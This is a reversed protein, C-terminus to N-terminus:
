GRMARVVVSLILGVAALTIPIALLTDLDSLYTGFSSIISSALSSAGAAV